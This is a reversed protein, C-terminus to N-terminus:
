EAIVHLKGKSPIPLNDAHCSYELIESEGKELSCYIFVEDDRVGRHFNHKLRSGMDVRIQDGELRITKPSTSRPTTLDPPAQLRQGIDESLLNAAISVAGHGIVSEVKPTPPLKMLSDINKVLSILESIDSPLEEPIVLNLKDIGEKTSFFVRESPALYIVINEAPCKGDNVIDFRPNIAREKLKYTLRTNRPNSEVKHILMKIYDPFLLVTKIFESPNDHKRSLGLESPAREFILREIDESKEEILKITDRDPMIKELKGIVADKDLPPLPPVSITDVADGNSNVCRLVLNPMVQTQQFVSNAGRSTSLLNRFLLSWDNKLSNIIEIAESFQRVWLGRQGSSISDIFEFVRDDEIKGALATKIKDEPLQGDQVMAKLQRYTLRKAWVEDDVFIYIPMGVEFATDFEINTISKGSEQDTSGYRGGIVLVLIDSSRVLWKCTEIPDLGPPISTDRSDSLVPQYGMSFIFQELDKRIQSLDYCTSSVFVRTKDM